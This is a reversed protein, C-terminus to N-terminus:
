KLFDGINEFLEEITKSTAMGNIMIQGNTQLRVELRNPIEFLNDRLPLYRDTLFRYNQNSSGVWPRSIDLKDQIFPGDILLDTVKLLDEWDNRKANLLHEYTYGSFTMISLGEAKLKKALDALAIAQDFPEGGLFTVGEIGNKLKSEMIKEYLEQTSILHGGKSTWTWPVACGNCNISCGQVWLCARKGPGEAKTLPLFRHIQLNM